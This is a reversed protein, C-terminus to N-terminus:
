RRPAKRPTWTKFVVGTDTRAARVREPQNKALPTAGWPLEYQNLLEFYKSDPPKPGGRVAEIFPDPPLYSHENIYHYVQNPAAYIVSGAFVRIEAAGLLYARGENEEIAGRAEPECFPCDFVGRSAMVSVACYLWLDRLLDKTPDRTAFPMEKSLWGVNETRCSSVKLPSYAYESLDPFYAM